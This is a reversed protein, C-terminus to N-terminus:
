DIVKSILAALSKTNNVLAGLQDKISRDLLSYDADQYQLLSHYEEYLGASHNVILNKLENINAIRRELIKKFEYIKMTEDFAKDAIEKNKATMFIGGGVIAVGAIAWGIPGALALLAEGAAMGGGGVALAGGGLWALAASTAAAGSLSAIATGTSAVGFTTAIAMAATPALAAIGTGVIVGGAGTGAATKVTKLAEEAYKEAATFKQLYLIVEQLDTDFQKPTNAISNILDAVLGILGAGRQKETYLSNCLDRAISAKEEYSDLARKYAKENNKRLKDNFM